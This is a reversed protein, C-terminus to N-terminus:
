NKTWHSKKVFIQCILSFNEDKGLSFWTPKEQNTIFRGIVKSIPFNLSQDFSLYKVSRGTLIKEMAKLLTTYYSKITIHEETFLEFGRLTVANKFAYGDNVQMGELATVAKMQETSAVQTFLHSQAIFPYFNVLIGQPILIRWAEDLGM